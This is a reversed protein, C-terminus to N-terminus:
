KFCSKRNKEHWKLIKNNKQLFDDVEVSARNTRSLKDLKTLIQMPFPRPPPHTQHTCRETPFFVPFRGFNPM